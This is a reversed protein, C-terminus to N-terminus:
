SIQNVREKIKEMWDTKDGFGWNDSNDMFSNLYVYLDEKYKQFFAFSLASVDYANQLQSFVGIVKEEDDYTTGKAKYIIEAYNQLVSWNITKKSTNGLYLSTDWASGKGGTKGANGKEIIALLRDFEETRKRKSIVVGVTIGTAVVTTIAVAGLILYTKKQGTTM